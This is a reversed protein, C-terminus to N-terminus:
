REDRQNGRQQTDDIPEDANRHRSVASLRNLRTLFGDRLRVAFVPCCCFMGFCALYLTCVCPSVRLLFLFINRM